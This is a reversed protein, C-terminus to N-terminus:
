AKDTHEDAILGKQKWNQAISNGIALAAFVGITWDPVKEKWESPLSVWTLVLGVAVANIRHSLYKWQVKIPARLKWSAM